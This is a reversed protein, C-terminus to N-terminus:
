NLSVEFQVYASSNLKDHVLKVSVVKGFTSFYEFISTESTSSPISSVYICNHPHYKIKKSEDGSYCNAYTKIYIVDVYEDWNTTDLFLDYINHCKNM